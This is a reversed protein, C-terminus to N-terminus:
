DAARFSPMNQPNNREIWGKGDAAIGELLRFTHIFGAANLNIESIESANEDPALQHSEADKVRINRAPGNTLVLELDYGAHSRETVQVSSLADFRYNSRQDSGRRADAFDFETSVERVGDQTVLFLRFSYRSYRWPGGKVRGRKYPRASTILITHTVLDRWTLQYHRLAEDVFLTKDCTLWTEMELESPRTADLFSKWNQYAVQRAALREQYEQTEEVLRHEEGLAELWLYAAARGSWVAGVVALIALLMQLAGAGSAVTGLLALTTIGLAILALVCLAKTGAPTENRHRHDFLTGKNHRDRADEALYRILWNVRDVSVRSERYLIAIEAVLSNRLHVTHGLWEHPAFGHPVRTSFYHDFSHRVRITFGDGTSAPDGTNPTRLMRNRAKLQYEQYWWRRGSHAATLGAGLAVLLEIVAAAPDALIGLIWLFATVFVFLGARVPLAARAAAATSPRPPLARPGIPDPEFYAWVRQVRDNGFRATEARDRNEAWLSDKLGGTLVLDLHHLIADRRRPPLARLRELVRGSEGDATSVMALLEFAVRLADKWEGEAYTRVLRSAHHLRQLEETSLDHYARGSLMALVWHFRVEANDHGHAIADSIMDRARSPVGDELFRVGVKYKEQPSADPHVFYVNSNHVTEAQIGVTSDYAASNHTFSSGDNM